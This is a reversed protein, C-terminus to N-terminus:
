ILEINGRNLNCIILNYYSSLGEINKDDIVLREINKNDNDM